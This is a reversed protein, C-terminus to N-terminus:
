ARGVEVFLNGVVDDLFAINCKRCVDNEHGSEHMKM